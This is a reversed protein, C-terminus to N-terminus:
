PQAVEQLVADMMMALEYIKGEEVTIQRTLEYSGMKFVAVHTGTEVSLPEKSFSLERGDFIATVNEPTRIYLLPTISKLQIDLQTIKGREIICSRTETRYADSSVNISYTGPQLLQLDNFQALYESNLQVSVPKQEHEPFRLNIKLGGEAILLPRVIVTLTTKEFDDPLGKMIPHFRLMFPTLALARRYPLLEGNKTQTFTYDNKVPIRIIHSFSHPLLTSTIKQASYDIEKKSPDPKIETYITYAIAHPYNMSIKDQKIELEIGELFLFDSKIVFSAADNYGMSLSVPEFVETNFVYSHTASVRFSEPYFFPAAFIFFYLPILLRQKM